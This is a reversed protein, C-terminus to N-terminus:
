CDVHLLINVKKEKKLEKGIHMSSVTEMENGLLAAHEATHSFEFDHWYNVAIVGTEMEGWKSKNAQGNVSESVCYEIGTCWDPFLQMEIM